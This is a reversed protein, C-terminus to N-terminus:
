KLVGECRVVREGEIAWADADKRSAWANNEVKGDKDVVAWVVIRRPKRKKATM